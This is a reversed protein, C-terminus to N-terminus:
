EGDKQKEVIKIANTKMTKIMKCYNGDDQKYTPPSNGARRRAKLSWGHKGYYLRTIDDSDKCYPMTIGIIKDTFPLPPGAGWGGWGVVRVRSKDLGDMSSWQEDNYIMEDKEHNKM